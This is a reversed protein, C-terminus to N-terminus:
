LQVGSFLPVEMQPLKGRQVVDFVHQRWFPWVNHVANFEAFAKIHKENLDALMEYSVVYDAEIEVYIKPAAKKTKKPIETLRIGLCIKVSLIKKQQEGNRVEGIEIMVGRKNQQQADTGDNEAPQSPRHFRSEYLIIDQLKLKPVAQAILAKNDETM